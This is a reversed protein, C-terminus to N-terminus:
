GENKEHSGSTRSKPNLSIIALYWVLELGTACVSGRKRCRFSSCGIWFLFDAELLVFGKLGNQLTLVLSLPSCYPPEYSTRSQLVPRSVSLLLQDRSEEHGGKKGFGDV